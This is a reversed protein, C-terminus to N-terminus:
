CDVFYNGNTNINDVYVVVEGGIHVCPMTTLLKSRYTYQTNLWRDEWIAVVIYGNRKVIVDTVVARIPTGTTKIAAVEEEAKDAKSRVSKRGSWLGM